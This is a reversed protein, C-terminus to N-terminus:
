CLQPSTFDGDVFACDDWVIPRGELPNSQTVNGKSVTSQSVSSTDTELLCCTKWECVHVSVLKSWSPWYSCFTGQSIRTAVSNRWVSPVCLVCSHLAIAVEFASVPVCACVCVCMCVCICAPISQCLVYVPVCASVCVHVCVHMCVCACVCVCM